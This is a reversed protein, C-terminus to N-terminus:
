LSGGTLYMLISQLDDDPNDIATVNSGSDIITQPLKKHVEGLHRTEILLKDHSAFSMGTVEGINIMSKALERPNDCELEIKHPHRDRICM